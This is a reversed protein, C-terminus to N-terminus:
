RKGKTCFFKRRFQEAAFETYTNYWVKLFFEIRKWLIKAFIDSLKGIFM